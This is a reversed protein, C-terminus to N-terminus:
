NQNKPPGPAVVMDSRRLDLGAALELSVGPRYIYRSMYVTM